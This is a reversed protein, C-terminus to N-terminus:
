LTVTFKKASKDAGLPTVVQIAGTRAGIPVVASISSSSNVTFETAPVGGFSVATAGLLNAGQIVVPTGVSGHSPSFSTIKPAGSLVGIVAEGSAATGAVTYKAIITANGTAVTKVLGSASVTAIATNSSSWQSRSTVDLTTGDSMTATATMQLSKKVVILPNPPAVVIKKPVASGVTVTITARVTPDSDLTATLTATSGENGVAKATLSGDIAVASSNSSTVKIAGSTVLGALDAVAGDTYTGTLTLQKSDGKPIEVKTVGFTMSQVTPNPNWGGLWRSLEKKISKAYM